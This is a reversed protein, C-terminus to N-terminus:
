EAFHFQNFHISSRGSREKGIVAYYGENFSGPALLYHKDPDIPISAPIEELLNIVKGNDDQVYALPRRPHGCIVGRKKRRTIQRFSKELDGRDIRNFIYKNTDSDSGYFGYMFTMELSRIHVRTSTGPRGSPDATNKFMVQILERYRPDEIRSLSLYANYEKAGAIMLFKKYLKQSNPDERKSLRSFTHKYMWIRRAQEQSLNGLFILKSSYYTNVFRDFEDSPVLDCNALVVAEPKM